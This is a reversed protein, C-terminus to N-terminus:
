NFEINKTLKWSRVLEYKDGLIFRERADNEEPHARTYLPDNKLLVEKLAQPDEKFAYEILDQAATLGISIVNLNAEPLKQNLGRIRYANVVGFAARRIDTLWSQEEVGLRLHVMAGLMLSSCVINFDFVENSEPLKKLSNHARTFGEILEEHDLLVSMWEYRRLAMTRRAAEKELGDALREVTETTLRNMKKALALKRNIAGHKGPKRPRKSRPM